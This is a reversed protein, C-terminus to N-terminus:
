IERCRLPIYNSVILYLCFERMGAYRVKPIDIAKAFSNVIFVDLETFYHFLHGLPCRDSM